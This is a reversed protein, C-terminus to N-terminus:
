RRLEGSRLSSAIWKRRQRSQKAESAVVSFADTSKNCAAAPLNLPRMELTPCIVNARIRSGRSGVLRYRIPDVPKGVDKTIGPRWADSGNIFTGGGQLAHPIGSARQVRPRTHMNYHYFCVLLLSYPIV